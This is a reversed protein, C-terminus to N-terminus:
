RLGVWTFFDQHTFLELILLGVFGLMAFRGNLLEAYTTWGFGPELNTTPQGGTPAITQTETSPSESTM